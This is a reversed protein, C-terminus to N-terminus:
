TVLCDICPGALMIRKGSVLINWCSDRCGPAVNEFRRCNLTCITYCAGLGSTFSDGYRLLSFFFGFVEAIAKPGSDSLLSQVDVHVFVRILSAGVRQM